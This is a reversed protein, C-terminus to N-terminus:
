RPTSVDTRIEDKILCSSCGLDWDDQLKNQWFCRQEHVQRRYCFYQKRKTIFTVGFGRMISVYFFGASGTRCCFKAWGSEYWHDQEQGRKLNIALIHNWLIHCATVIYPARHDKRTHNQSFINVNEFKGFIDVKDGKRRIADEPLIWFIETGQESGAIKLLNIGFYNHRTTKDQGRATRRHVKYVVGLWVFLLNEFLSFVENFSFPKALSAPLVNWIWHQLTPTPLITLRCTCM